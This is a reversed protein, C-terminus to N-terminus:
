IAMYVSYQLFSYGVDVYHARGNVELQERDDGDSADVDDDRGFIASELEEPDIDASWYSDNESILNM